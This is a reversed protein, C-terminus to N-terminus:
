VRRGKVVGEMKGEEEVCKGIVEVVEEFVRRKADVAWVVDLHEYEPIVKKHVLEVHPELGEEFRNILREGDVLKDSGAVWMALKPFREDFWAGGGCEPGAEKGASHTSLICRHKAFCERGLWWRMAEASVYVPAFRFFRRRLTRDWRTDSWGFLFWFVRYGLEGYLKAPVLKHMTMMFPIFAHIGFVIRFASPPIIKMFKFYIKDILPGAYVAPALACFVSIKQGLDPRQQKALSVFTQTTGQSHAILALKSFQSLTLIPNIFAPLDLIGMQRINWAWMRPDHYNLVTHKPHFGCRNNGLWVDYGCRVLYFALSNEDNVCYAGASQLLGHILLVPYRRRGKKGNKRKETERPLISMIEEDEEAEERTERTMVPYYPLDEPDYIHHMELVFGDETEVEFTESDLGVKRAYYGIDCVLEDKEGRAELKVKEAKRRKEYDEFPRDKDPDLGQFQMWKRWLFEPTSETIAGLVIVLLFCLSLFGSTFQFVACQLQRLPTAPGYVPLPPFLPDTFAPALEIHTEGETKEDTSDENDSPETSPDLSSSSSDEASSSSLSRLANLKKAEPLPVGPLRHGDATEIVTDHATVNLAKIADGDPSPLNDTGLDSQLSSVSKTSRTSLPSPM